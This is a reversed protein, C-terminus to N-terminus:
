AILTPPRLRALESVRSLLEALGFPKALFADCGADFAAARDSVEDRASVILVPVRVERVRLTRVLELGDMGPMSVDTVLVDPHVAELVALAEAGGAVATVDVGSARLAMSMARRVPETDEVLLARVRRQPDATSRDLLTSVITM